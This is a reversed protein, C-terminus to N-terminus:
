VTMISIFWLKGNNRLWNSPAETGFSCRYRGVSSCDAPPKRCAPNSNCGTLLKQQIGCEALEVATANSPAADGSKCVSKARKAVRDSMTPRLGCYSLRRQRPDM